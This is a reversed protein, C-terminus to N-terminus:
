YNSVKLDTEKKLVMVKEGNIDREGNFKFGRHKYMNIAQVNSEYVSLFIENCNYENLLREILIDLSKKGYGKGQHEEAIMFRDLWVRGKSEEERFFGYMAFGVLNNEHYIGVPRWLDLEKAEDLCEETTEIFGKQEKAVHLALADRYNEKTVKRIIIDM